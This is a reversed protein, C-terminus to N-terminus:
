IKMAQLKSQNNMSGFRGNDDLVIRSLATNPDHTFFISGSTQVIHSLIQIKEDLLKEPYRDYGMAISRHVWARGPILDSAFLIPGLKSSIETLMLGVTHGNSFHFKYDDGLITSNSDNILVMRGSNKLLENLEPIFSARDRNHPSCARKWHAAGVLFTANPFLLELPHNERYASLLGGAHDFHLHSLVVIDIDKDSLGLKELNHILLNDTGQVGFRDRYKPPFFAGIGAEFVIRKNGDKVLLCRCALEIRNEDDAPYWREWLAKPANGFMAGGDLRQSNSHISYLLKAM